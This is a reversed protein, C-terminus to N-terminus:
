ITSSETSNSSYWWDFLQDIKEDTYASTKDGLMMGIVLGTIPVTIFTIVNRSPVAERAIGSAITSSGFQVIIRVVKKTTTRAKQEQTEM